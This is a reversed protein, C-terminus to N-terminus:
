GRRTPDTRIDHTSTKWQRLMLNRAVPDAGRMRGAFWNTLDLLREEDINTLSAHQRTTLYGGIFREGLETLRWRQGWKPRGPDKAIFLLNGHEDTLHERELVGYRWLWSCRQAVNKRELGKLEEAKVVEGADFWGDGESAEVCLMLFERDSFDTVRLTSPM